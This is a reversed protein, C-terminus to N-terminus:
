PNSTRARMQGGGLLAALNMLLVAFAVGDPYNGWRRIVLTLLGVGVGFLLRGRVSTRRIMPDAVIFFAAFVLGGAVLHQLPSAHSASDLLWLPLTAAVTAGLMAAPAHWHIIRRSLLWAGGFAWALALASGGVAGFHGFLPSTRIEGVALGSDLGAKLTALPTPGTVADIGSPLVLGGSFIAALSAGFGPTWDALPRPLLWQSMDQPFGVLVVVYGVMAPHLVNRGPGGLLHEAFVIAFFMGIASIWWPALPPICLAFLVATVVASHDPPFPAPPTGRLRAMMADFFLAFGTALLMQVLVGSGWFAAYVVIGPLLALLIEGMLVRENM